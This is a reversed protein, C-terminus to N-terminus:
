LEQMTSITQKRLDVQNLNAGLLSFHMHVDNFGPCAYRGQLDVHEKADLGEIEDDVGIIKGDFIGIRNAYPHQPDMTQINGNEIIADLKIM